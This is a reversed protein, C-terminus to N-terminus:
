NGVKFSAVQRIDRSSAGALIKYKGPELVWKHAADSFYALNNVDIILSVNVSKGPEVLVKKFAKLEKKPRLVASKVKSVYLQVVEKGAVQGTNKVTITASIKDGAKYKKKDTFLKSYAFGAYSLGYGFCYLPKIKRTDYWRYGVLIGEKYHTTLNKGPYTGLWFAPSDHLSAPFTFPLRGSPDIVGKLVDALANGAESGNFWSWVITHSEKKIKGLDYPAGAMIVIITNPNAATVADVLAQEGFPLELNKRDHGESEYERNSGICLIAIDTTKALAVAQDILYQNPEDFGANQADTNSALYNAKYGQAFKIEATSGFRSKIGELATIEFKAKVGAGYGGLAFTRTANDGIVAISKIKKSNLPLLHADNKLLVISESAIDYVAKSHVPTAISGEPHNASMSTHYMVWLIRRVKDDITKESVKGAKVAALLPDAFYWKNYPGSSGMEIDLGANAAAVTHHTGGWDSMVIGKFGWEKKLVTNLLFNNESCWYGNLKNYASMVVYANGEQVAAKFAPFYIERLAREDVIADITNRDVEQNNAAFHKVCAAVHQSQIGKVAQVALQANLYPDESYYEYTRGCLPMRCINFAPALMINKKRANAEEGLVVGYKNAMAPNW